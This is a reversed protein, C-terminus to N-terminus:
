GGLLVQVGDRLLLVGMGALMAGLLRMMVPYWRGALHRRGRAAILALLVKGGVLGTYFVVLFAAVLPWGAALADDLLPVGVGIWFLYPAPNLANALMAERLSGPAPAGAAAPARSRMTQLALVLLYGGGIFSLATLLPSGAAAVSGILVAAAIIPADTLLPALAVRAGAGAGHRLAERLVLAMLPGPALGASAGLVAAAGITEIIDYM